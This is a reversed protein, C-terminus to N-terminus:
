IAKGYHEVIKKYIAKITTWRVPVDAVYTGRQDCDDCGDGMCNECYMSITELFEGSLLGKAGNEATLRDPLIVGRDLPRKVADKEIPTEVSSEGSYALHEWKDM